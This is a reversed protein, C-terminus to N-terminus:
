IVVLVRKLMQLSQYWGILMERIAQIYKNTMRSFFHILKQNNEPEDGDCRQKWHRAPIPNRTMTSSFSYFRFGCKNSQDNQIELSGRRARRGSWTMLRPLCSNTCKRVAFANWRLVTKM